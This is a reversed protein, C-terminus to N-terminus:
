RQRIRKCKTSTTSNMGGGRGTNASTVTDVDDVVADEEDDDDCRGLSGDMIFTKMMTM